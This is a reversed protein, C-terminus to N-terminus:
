RLPNVNLTAQPRWGPRTREPTDHLPWALEVSLLGDFLSAGVGAFAFTEGAPPADDGIWGVDGFAQLRIRGAWEAIPVDHWVGAASGLLLREEARVVPEFTRLGHVGNLRFQMQVPADHTTAGARSRLNLTVSPHVAQYSQVDLLFRNYALPAGFGQGIEAHIRAITGVSRRESRRTLRGGEVTVLVTRVEGADVPPNPRPTRDNLLTWTTTRDLRDHEAWRAGVTAQLQPSIRQVGYVTVGRLDYYNFLDQGFLLASISTAEWSRKWDDETATTRAVHAGIKLGYGSTASPPTVLRAEVGLVARWQRLGLAYSIQGFPAVPLDGTWSLPDRQLGVVAGEVRNFRLAPASLYVSPEQRYPRYTSQDAGFTTVQSGAVATARNPLSDPVAVQTTDESPPTPASQAMVGTVLGLGWALLLVATRGVHPPSAMPPNSTLM